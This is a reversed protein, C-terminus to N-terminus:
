SFESTHPFQPCTVAGETILAVAVTVSVAVLTALEAWDAEAVMVNFGGTEGVIVETVTEQLGM